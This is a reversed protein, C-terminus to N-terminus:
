TEQAEPVQGNEKWIENRDADALIDSSAIISDPRETIFAIAKSFSEALRAKDDQMLFEDSCTIRIEMDEDNYAVGVVIDFETPDLFDHARLEIEEDGSSGTHGSRQISMITNFLTSSGLELMKHISSLSFTQHPLCKSFEGQAARLTELVTQQKNLRVRYSLMAIIPGLINDVNDVPLDRGSSLVGFCPDVSGTYQSLVLAWALQVITAPSVEWTQCLNQIKRMDIDKVTTTGHGPEKNGSNQMGPFHCPQVGDLYQAWYDRLDQQSQQEIYRIVEKFSPAGPDLESHYAAQLDHLLISRSHADFIAHNIDLGLFVKKNELQCISLHHQIGESLHQRPDYLCRLQEPTVTDHALNFVSINPQPCNLIVNTLGSRGPVDHVLLARLLSHKQVVRKWAQQLRAVDVPRFQTAVVEVILCSWYTGTDRSQSALIGEQMPSCPFVDEVQEADLGLAPLTEDQFRRVDKYTRFALPLDSLTWQLGRGSLVSPLEILAEEYLRIWQGIKQQHHATRDYTFTVKACGNEVLLSIDFLSMRPMSDTEPQQQNYPVPYAKFLSDKGELQQYMGSYNLVAEVPFGHVFADADGDSIFQSAFFPWGNQKFSRMHDKTARVAEAMTQTAEASIQVPMMTTFWGVTRSLDIDAWTERGHAENFVTPLGRDPFASAFSFLLAALMLEIPRTRFPHNCTELLAWTTQEDLVFGDTIADVNTLVSLHEGWYTLWGSNWELGLEPGRDPHQSIYQAQINQWSQFSICPAPPRTASLLLNELDELLVRWSVLDIVLHHAALFLFQADDRDLVAATFVPGDTLQLRSRTQFIAQATEVSGKGSIQQIDFSSGSFESIHQRWRGNTDQDFRARLMSHTKVLEGLAIRLREFDFRTSLQLLLHQDFRCAGAPDLRFYLQQIPTLPFSRNAEDSSAHVADIASSHLNKAFSSMASITKRELIIRTPLALGHQRALSSVRM